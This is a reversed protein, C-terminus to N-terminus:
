IAKIAAEIDSIQFPQGKVENFQRITIGEVKSRLYGAFQGNNLECCLINKYRKLVEATNKPLPSIYTFHAQALKMGEARLNEVAASIHGYTGGWGIVLTDADADGKVELAPICNAIYDIKAQRNNVMEQHVNPDTSIAGHVNKELGGLRHMLGETGPIAKLRVFTEPDRAFPEYSGAMDATAVAPKIEPLAEPDPIRLSSSGNGLFADTLLIVPTNHELAIKSANYASYFCDVPTSAAMVVAPSEGNRGYLCQLLDTQETKTPLGTSPGGRMVDIVVLPLEAMVALGIAESKLAIGPGSTSTAALAGGFSAGIATCIGAIEDEAQVTTVGLFKLKSLEHLIDTAPTIPYSGLFLKLGAKEAAAVLGYATAANGKVDCYIGPEAKESEIRYTSVSAHTNAGYNFGDTLVKINAALVEPKKGFKSTLFEEAKELPRNFLWFVFGVAFINRCRAVSKADMGTDALSSKTSESVPVPVLQFKDAIGLEAFPDDTTFKAKDLESKVFTDTDYILVGGKKLYKVNQKLAAPNMAILVDCADGPTYVKKGVHVQYSSVGGLSGRPARMEAPYDPFTSIENGLIAAVTSFITGALQMGDGSDGSFRVVVEPTDIIKPNEM